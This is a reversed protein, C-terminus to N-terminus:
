TKAKDTERTTRPKRSTPTVVTATATGRAEAGRVSAHRVADRADDWALPCQLNGAETRNTAVV